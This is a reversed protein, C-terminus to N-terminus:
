KTILEEDSPVSDWNIDVSRYYTGNEEDLQYEIRLNGYTVVFRTAISGNMSVVKTPHKEKMSNFFKRAKAENDSIRKQEEDRREECFNIWENLIKETPQTFKAPAVRTRGPGEVPHMGTENEIPMPELWNRREGNIVKSRLIYTRQQDKDLLCDFEWSIFIKKQGDVYETIVVRWGRVLDYNGCAQYLKRNEMPIEEAESLIDANAITVKAENTKGEIFKKLMDLRYIYIVKDM